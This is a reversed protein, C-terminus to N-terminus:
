HVLFQRTGCLRRRVQSRLGHVTAKHKGGERSSCYFRGSKLLDFLINHLLFNSKNVGGLLTVKLVVNPSGQLVVLVMCNHKSVAHFGKMRLFNKFSRM